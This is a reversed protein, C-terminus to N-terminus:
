CRVGGEGPEHERLHVRSVVGVTALDVPVDVGDDFHQGASRTGFGAVRRDVLGANSAASARAPVVRGYRRNVHTVYSMLCRRLTVPPTVASCRDAAPM